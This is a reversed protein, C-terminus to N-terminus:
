AGAAKGTKRRVVEGKYRIGKGKYPEPPRIGRISAAVQGILEKDVADLVLSTQTKAVEATVGAPLKFPVTHSFGVSFVLTDGKQEIRFGVGQVELERKFGTSVGQVMNSLLSRGLGHMSKARTTKAVPSVVVENGERVFTIEEFSRTLSGRPGKVTITTGDIAVDVGAPLVVPQKGIRSDTYKKKSM